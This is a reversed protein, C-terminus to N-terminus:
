GAQRWKARREAFQAVVDDHDILDGQEAAERGRAIAADVERRWSVYDEVAEALMADLAVGRAAAWAELDAKAAEDIPVSVHVTM